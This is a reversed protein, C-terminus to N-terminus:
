EFRNKKHPFKQVSMYNDDWDDDDEEFASLALDFVRPYGRKELENDILTTDITKNNYSKLIEAIDAKDVGALEMEFELDSIKMSAEYYFQVRKYRV